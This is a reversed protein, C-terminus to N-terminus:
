SARLVPACVRGASPQLQQPTSLRQRHRGFIETLFSYERGPRTAQEHRAKVQGGADALDAGRDVRQGSGRRDHRNAGKTHGQQTPRRGATHSSPLVGLTNVLRAVVSRLRGASSREGCAVRRWLRASSQLGGRHGNPHSKRRWM